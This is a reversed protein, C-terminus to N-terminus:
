ESQDQSRVLKEGSGRKVGRQGPGLAQDAETQNPRHAAAAGDGERLVAVQRDIKQM